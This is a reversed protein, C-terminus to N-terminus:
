GAGEDDQLLKDLNDHMADMRTAVIADVTEQPLESIHYVRTARAKLRRYEEFEDASLFYGSRQGHSTVAVPERQAIEKYRGFNRAFEAAPVEIM